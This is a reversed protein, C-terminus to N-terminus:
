VASSTPWMQRPSAFVGPDDCALHLEETEDLGLRLTIIASGGAQLPMGYILTHSRGFGDFLYLSVRCDQTAGAVVVHDVMDLGQAIRKTELKTKTTKMTTM